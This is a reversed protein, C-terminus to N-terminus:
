KGEDFPSAAQERQSRRRSDSNGIMAPYLPADGEGVPSSKQAGAEHGNEDKRRTVRALQRQVKELQQGFDKAVAIPDGDLAIAFARSAEIAETIAKRRARLGTVGTGDIALGLRAAATAIDDWKPPRMPQVLTDELKALARRAAQADSSTLFEAARLASALVLAGDRLEDGVQGGEGALRELSPADHSRFFALADREIAKRLEDRADKMREPSFWREQLLAALERRDSTTKARRVHIEDLIEGGASLGLGTDVLAQAEAQARLVLGSALAARAVSVRPSDLGYAWYAGASFTLAGALTGALLSLSRSRRVLLASGLVLSIFASAAVVLAAVVGGNGYAGYWVHRGVYRGYILAAVGGGSLFLFSMLFLRVKLGAWRSTSSVAPPDGALEVLGKGLVADFSFRHVTGSFSQRRQQLVRDGRPDLSRELEAPLSSPQEMGTDHILQNPWSSRDFDEPDAVGHHVSVAANAALVSVKKRSEREM